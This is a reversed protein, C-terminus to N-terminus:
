VKLKLVFLYGAYLISNKKGNILYVYPAKKIAAKIYGISTIKRIKARKEDKTGECQLSKMCMYIDILKCAYFAAFDREWTDKVKFFKVRYDEFKQLLMLNNEVLYSSFTHSASQFNIRYFYIKQTIAYVHKAMCYAHFCFATDESLKVGEPFTIGNEVLFRRKYFKGWSAWNNYDDIPAVAQIRKKYKVFRLIGRALLESNIPKYKGDFCRECREVRSYGGIIIEADAPVNKDRICDFAGGLLRDDADVFTVWENRALKVGENRAVSVGVKRLSVVKINNFKEAYERCLVPSKDESGNEVLIIENDESIQNLISSVCERLYKEANHVPIIVSLNM